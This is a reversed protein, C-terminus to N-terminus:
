FSFDWANKEEQSKSIKSNNTLDIQHFRNNNIEIDESPNDLVAQPKEQGDSTSNKVSQVPAADNKTSRTATQPTEYFEYTNGHSNVLYGKDVLIQFQDNYTSRPMGVAQRLASPSLALAYNDANSALYLYLLLAHPRLDRAAAMWNENKIGLFDSTVRERHVRVMRQNPFTVTPM